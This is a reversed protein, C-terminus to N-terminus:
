SMMMIISFRRTAGSSGLWLQRGTVCPQGGTGSPRVIRLVPTGNPGQELPFFVHRPAPDAAVAHANDSPHEENIKV